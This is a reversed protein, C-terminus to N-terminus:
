GFITLLDNLHSLKSSNTLNPLCLCMAEKAGSLLLQKAAEPSCCTDICSASRCQKETPWQGSTPITASAAGSVRRISTPQSMAIRGARSNHSSPLLHAAWRGIRCQRVADAVRKGVPLKDAIPPVGPRPLLM